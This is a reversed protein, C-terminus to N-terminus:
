RSESPEEFWPAASVFRFRPEALRKSSKTRRFYIKGDNIRIYSLKVYLSLFFSFFVFLFSIIFSLIICTISLLFYLFFLSPKEIERNKFSLVDHLFLYLYHVNFPQITLLYRTNINLTVYFLKIRLSSSFPRYHYITLSQVEKTLIRHCHRNAEEDGHQHCRSM